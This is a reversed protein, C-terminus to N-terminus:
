FRYAISVGSTFQWRSGDETIPSEALDGVLYSAGVRGIVGLQDTFWYGATLGIGVDRFGSGPHYESLGSSAAGARDVGFYTRAYDEDVWTTHMDFALSFDPQRIAVYGVSARALMGDHADSVDQLLSLEMEVAGQGYQDGGFRYGVFAGVEIATDIEPLRGVPGDADERGLRVGIAPGFSLNSDQSLDIRAQLGRFELEVNGLNVNGLVFPVPEHDEAGEYAPVAGIGVAIMGRPADDASVAQAYGIAPALIMSCVLSGSLIRKM